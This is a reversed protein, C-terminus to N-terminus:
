NLQGYELQKKLLNYKSLDQRRSILSEIYAGKCIPSSSYLFVKVLSSTAPHSDPTLMQHSPLTTFAVHPQNVKSSTLAQGFSFHFSLPRLLCFNMSLDSDASPSTIAERPELIGVDWIPQVNANESILMHELLHEECITCSTRSNINWPIKEPCLFPCAIYKHVQLLIRHM